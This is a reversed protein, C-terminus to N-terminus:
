IMGLPPKMKRDCESRNQCVYAYPPEESPQAIGVGRPPRPYFKRYGDGTCYYIPVAYLVEDGRKSVLEDFDPESMELLVFIPCDCTMSM